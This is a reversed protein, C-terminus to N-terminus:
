KLLLKISDDDGTRTNYLFDQAMIELSSGPPILAALKEIKFLSVIRDLRRAVGSVIINEATDPSYPANGTYIHSLIEYVVDTLPTNKASRIQEKSLNKRSKGLKILSSLRAKTLRRFAFRVIKKHKKLMDVPLFGESADLFADYDALALPVIKKVIGPFNLSYLYEYLSAEGTDFGPIKDIGVSTIECEGSSADVEVKRMKGAANVLSITSVDVFRNGNKGTFERINQVHTHGTFIVRVDNECMTDCLEKYGGYMEYDVMHSFVDWPPIVPHHVALMILDGAAKAQSIQDSLWRNGEEFLGCHSRGNGNDIIAALRLGDGIRVTYSGSEADVSLAQDAGYPRYFDFLDSRKLFEIPETGTQTFRCAGHQFCEDEGNPSCYDHTAYTVYVKKGAAKLKDLRERFENHSDVDGSNTNDGLFIVTDTQTDAIIKEIFADLIEPSAKLAIQDGRERNNIPKGEVWTKKSVYHTDTLLYFSSKKSM